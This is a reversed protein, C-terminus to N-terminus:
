AGAPAPGVEVPLDLARRFFGADQYEIQDERVRSGPPLIELLAEVMCGIECRALNAGLCYHPGSGFTAFDRVDRDFDLRDPNPYVAPDYNAGGLALMLMDGECVRSGRLEFDRVAYRQPGAPSVFAYRLIENISRHILPPDARLRAAAEPLGLLMRIITAGGLATTETGAGVIGTLLLVIDDENLRDDADEAHVLDTILDEEPTTRRKAVLERVWVSLEQFSAEAQKQLDPPTFPVFASIVSQSLERFREEDDGPPVGTIRSIVSNPVIQTFDAFLDLVEGSRNRLPAAVRDVVERIQNEMRRVARPTFAASVLRRVRAHDQPSLAMMGHDDAWRLLSGEPPPVYSSWLRKDPSVRQEPDHFLTKIDDHRTVLWFGLPEVRHVPDTARLRQLIPVPDDTALMEFFPDGSM